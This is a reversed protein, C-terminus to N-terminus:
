GEWPNIVTLGLGSFDKTNRTALWLGRSLCIAAIMADETTVPRGAARRKAVVTGYSEGAQADYGVIIDRYASFVGDLLRQLEGKRHGDPLVEMGACLEGVTISTITVESVHGALWTLVHEDPAPKMTESVVNTDIIIM